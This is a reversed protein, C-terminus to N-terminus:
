GQLRRRVAVSEAIGLACSVALHFSAASSLFPLPIGTVPMVGLNMGVNITIHILFLAGIGYLLLTAFDDGAERILRYIRWFLLALLGL